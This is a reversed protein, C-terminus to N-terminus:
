MVKSTEELQVKLSDVEMPDDCKALLDSKEQLIQAKEANASDLEEQLSLLQKEVHELREPDASDNAQLCFYKIIHLNQFCLHIYAHLISTIDAKHNTDSVM